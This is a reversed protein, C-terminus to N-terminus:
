YLANSYQEFNLLNPLPNLKIIKEVQEEPKDTSYYNLTEIRKGTTLNYDVLYMKGLGDSNVYSYGILEFTNNQYRFKHEFHGRTLSSEIWLVGNHISLEGFGNGLTYQNRGNPFQPQIAKDTSIILKKDGNKQTFFIELRYPAFENITDQSVMAVDMVGDNNMDGYVLSVLNNFSLEVQDNQCFTTFPALLLFFLIRM